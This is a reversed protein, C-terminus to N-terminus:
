ATYTRQNSLPTPPLPHRHHPITHLTHAAHRTHPISHTTHPARPTNIHKTNRTHPDRGTCQTTSPAAWCHWRVQLVATLQGAMLGSPETGVPQWVVGQLAAPATPVTHVWKPLKVSVVDLWQYGVVETGQGGRAGQGQVARAATVAAQLAPAEQHWCMVHAPPRPLAALLSALHSAPPPAGLASDMVQMQLGPHASRVARAVLAGAGPSPGAAHATIILLAHPNGGWHRVLRHALGGAALTSPPTIVVCPGPPLPAAHDTGQAAEGPLSLDPVAILRGSAIMADFGFAPEASYARAKRVSHACVPWWAHSANHDLPHLGLTRSHM